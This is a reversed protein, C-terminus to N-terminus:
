PVTGRAGRDRNDLFDQLIYCAAVRDIAAKEAKCETSDMQGAPQAIASPALVLAVVLFCPNVRM